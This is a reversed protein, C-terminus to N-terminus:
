PASTVIHSTGEGNGRAAADWHCPLVSASGDEHTCPALAPGVHKVYAAADGLAACDAVIATWHPSPVPQLGFEAREAPTAGESINDLEAMITESCADASADIGRGGVGEIAYGRECLSRYEDRLEPLAHTLAADCEAARSESASAGGVPTSTWESPLAMLTGIALLVTAYTLIIQKVMEAGLTISTEAQCTLRVMLAACLQRASEGFSVLNQRANALDDLHDQELDDLHDKELDDLHDQAPRVL